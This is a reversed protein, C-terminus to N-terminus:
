MSGPTVFQWESGGPITPTTGIGEMYWGSARGGGGVPAFDNRYGNFITFGLNEGFSNIAHYGDWQIAIGDNLPESTLPLGNLEIARGTNPSPPPVTVGAQATFYVKIRTVEMSAFTRNVSLYNIYEGTGRRSETCVFGAGYFWQPLGQSWGAPVGSGFAGDAQTWDCYLAWTAACESCDSDEIETTTGAWNLADEGIFNMMYSLQLALKQQSGTLDISQLLDSKIGDLVGSYNFSVVGATDTANKLLICELKDTFEADWLDATLVAFLDYVLHWGFAFMGFLGIAILGFPAILLAGVKLAFDTILQAETAGASYADLTEEYTQQLVYAANKAALCKREDETPETRAPTPPTAYDGEPEAWASDVLQEVTGDPNLRLIGEGDPQECGGACNETYWEDLMQQMREVTEEVTLTGFQTWNWSKTLETLAGGVLALWATDDPVFLPRCLVGEPIEDPTLYGM